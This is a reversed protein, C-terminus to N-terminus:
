NLTLGGDLGPHFLLRTVQAYDRLMPKPDHALTPALHPFEQM